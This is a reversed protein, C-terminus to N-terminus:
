NIPDIPYPVNKGNDTLCFFQIQRNSYQRGGCGALELAVAHKQACAYCLNTDSPLPNGCKNKFVTECHSPGTREAWLMLLGMVGEHYYAGGPIHTGNYISTITIVDDRLLQYPPNFTCPPISVVYGNENGVTTGNGYKPLAECLTGIREGNRYHEVTYNIGGVHQHSEIFIVNMDQPITSSNQVIYDTTGNDVDNISVDYEIYCDYNKTALVDFSYNILPIITNNNNNNDVINVYGITYNLYYKKPDDTTNQMGWCFTQDPCCELAGHPHEPTGDPCHCEICNQVDSQPVTDTRIFHLNVTWQETGDFVVGYPEPYNYLVGRM